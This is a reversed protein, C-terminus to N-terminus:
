REIAPNRKVAAASTALAGKTVLACSGFILTVYFLDGVLMSRFFPIAAAYCTVLGAATHPYLDRFCWVAFNSVLWFATAPITVSAAMRSFTMKRRLLGGLLVPMLLITYVALMVGLRDYAPLLTDSIAMVSLPVLLATLRHAFYYGAFLTVAAMPTFCWDPQGWRGVVGIAVLLCFVVGPIITNQKVINKVKKKPSVPPLAAPHRPRRRPESGV